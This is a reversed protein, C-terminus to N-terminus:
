YKFKQPYERDSKRNVIEVRNVSGKQYFIWYTKGCSCSLCDRIDRTPSIGRKYHLDPNYSKYSPYYGFNSIGDFSAPSEMLYFDSCLRFHYKQIWRFLNIFDRPNKSHNKSGIRFYESPFGKCFKCRTRVLIPTSLKVRIIEESDKKRKSM